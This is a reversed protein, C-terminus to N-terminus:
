FNPEPKSIKNSFCLFTKIGGVLAGMFCLSGIYKRILSVFEEKFKKPDKIKKLKFLLFPVLHLVLYFKFGRAISRTCKYYTEYFCSTDPHVHECTIGPDLPSYIM